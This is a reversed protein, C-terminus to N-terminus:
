LLSLEQSSLSQELPRPQEMTRPQELPRPIWPQAGCACLFAAIDNMTAPDNTSDDAAGQPVWIITEYRARTLLVRYSNRQFAARDPSHQTQWRTGRFARAVWNGHKDRILDGGWCLGVFDLELGQCAFQNAPVELADSARVDPWRNLFWNAVAREDLHPFEPSIGEARLRHAGASCILGARRNGRARQRLGVRLDQLSRTLYFPVGDNSAIGSARKADGALVADVWPASATSRVSRVPVNLHLAPDIRATKPPTPFLSERKEAGAFVSPAAVVSWDPRTTLAAGWEALGGEGTSIEQGCGVLAVIVAYDTHRRMIDLFLGAESDDRGFRRRGFAADWARQAEDFVIVHEHPPEPRDTNDRLFGLLPQLASEAHQSAARRSRGAGAADRVLAERLVWILPLNGTLFASAVGAGFVANLGCLTKGAGPIGTVFVVVHRQATKAADIARRIATSTLTLNTADAHATAIEAVHHKTYLMTAAEIITPVPRYTAAEWAAPNLPVSPPGIRRQIEDVQDAFQAPGACILCKPVHHWFLPWMNCLPSTGSMQMAVLLPVIPHQQSGAHFDGLDLAFDEVQAYDALSFQQKFAIVIIARDTLIVADVRRGLRLLPFELLIRWEADSPLTALLAIQAQWAQIRAAINFAPTEILRCALRDVVRQQLLERITGSWWALHQM